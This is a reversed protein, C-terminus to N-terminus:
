YAENFDKVWLTVSERIESVLSDRCEAAANINDKPGNKWGDIIVELEEHHTSCIDPLKMSGSAVVEESGSDRIEYDVNCHFDFIYRKKGSVLAVSADGTMDTAETIFGCLAASEVKTQKLRQTLRDRCWIGCDREEWTQATNWKSGSSVIDSQQSGSDLKKPANRQAALMKEEKTQERTFYSTVSGDRLTKYGRLAQLEKDTLEEDSDSDDAKTLERLKRRREKEAEMRKREEEEKEEEQKKSEQEYEDFSCASEGRAMRRVCEDEWDKRRKAKLEEAKRKSEIEAEKKLRKEEEKDDYLLGGNSFAKQMSQRAKGNEKAISHKISALEKRVASNKSDYKLAERLDDRAKKYEGLKRNAVARRYFAKVNNNEIKLVSSAVVASEKYKNLKFYMMSLNSQLSVLLSKVQPDGTNAKNLPKLTSTGRRYSRLAKEYDQAKFYTNGEEKLRTAKILLLEPDKKAESTDMDYTDSNDSETSSVSASNEDSSAESEVKKEENMSLDEGLEVQMGEIDETRVSSEAM